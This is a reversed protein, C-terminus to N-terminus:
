LQQYQPNTNETENEKVSAKNASGDLNVVIFDAPSGHQSILDKYKMKLSRKFTGLYGPKSIREKDLSVSEIHDNGIFMMLQM